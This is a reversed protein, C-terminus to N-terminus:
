SRWIGPPYHVVNTAQKWVEPPINTAMNGTVKKRRPAPPEVHVDRDIIMLEM